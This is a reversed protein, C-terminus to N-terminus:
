IRKNRHSLCHSLRDTLTEILPLSLSITVLGPQTMAGATVLMTDHDSWSWPGAVLSTYYLISTDQDIVCDVM